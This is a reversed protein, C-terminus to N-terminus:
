YIGNSIAAKPTPKTSLGSYRGGSMEALVNPWGPKLRMRAWAIVVTLICLSMAEGMISDDLHLRGM